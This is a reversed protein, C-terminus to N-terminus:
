ASNRMMVLCVVFDLQGVLRGKAAQAEALKVQKNAVLDDFPVQSDGDDNEIFHM